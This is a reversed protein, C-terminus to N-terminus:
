LLSARFGLENIKNVIDNSSLKSSSDYVFTGKKAALDVKAEKVGELDGVECEVKYVCSGCTMGEISVEVRTESM